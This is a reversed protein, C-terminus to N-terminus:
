YMYAGSLLEDIYNPLESNWGNMHKGFAQGQLPDHNMGLCQGEQLGSFM